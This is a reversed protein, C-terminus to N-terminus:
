RTKHTFNSNMLEAVLKVKLMKTNFLPLTEHNMYFKREYIIYVLKKKM